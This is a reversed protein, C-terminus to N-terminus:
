AEGVKFMSKDLILIKSIKIEAKRNSLGNRSTQM